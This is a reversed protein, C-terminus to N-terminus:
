HHHHIGHYFGYRLCFCSGQVLFGFIWPNQENKRSLYISSQTSQSKWGPPGNIKRLGGFFCDSSQWPGLYVAQFKPPTKLSRKECGFGLSLGLRGSGHPWCWSSVCFFFCANSTGPRFNPDITLILPNHGWYLLNTLLHFLRYGNIRVEQFMRTGLVVMNQKQFDAWIARNPRFHIM